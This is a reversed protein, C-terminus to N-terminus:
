SGNGVEGVAEKQMARGLSEGQQLQVDEMKVSRNNGRRIIEQVPRTVRRIM